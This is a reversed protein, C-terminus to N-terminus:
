IYVAGKKKPAVCGGGRCKAIATKVSTPDKGGFSMVNNARNFSSKGIANMKLKNIQEGSSNNFKKKQVITNIYTERGIVFESGQTMSAPKFPMGTPVRTQLNNNVQKLPFTAPGPNLEPIGM